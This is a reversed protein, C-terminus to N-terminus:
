QIFPVNHKILLNKIIHEGISKRNDCFHCYVRNKEKLTDSRLSTIKKCTLCQCKWYYRKSNFSHLITMEQDVELVRMNNIIQGSFDDFRM